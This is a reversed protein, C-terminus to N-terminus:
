WGNRKEWYYLAIVIVVGLAIIAAQALSQM